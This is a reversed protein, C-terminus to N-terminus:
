QRCLEGNQRSQQRQDKSLKSKNSKEVQRSRQPQVAGGVEPRAVNVCVKRSQTMLKRKCLFCQPMATLIRQSSHVAETGVLSAQLMVIRVASARNYSLDAAAVAVAILVSMPWVRWTAGLGHM